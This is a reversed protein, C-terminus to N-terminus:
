PLLNDSYIQCRCESDNCIPKTEESVSGKIGNFDLFGKESVDSEM